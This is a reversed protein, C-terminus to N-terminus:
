FSSLIRELSSVSKKMDLNELIYERPHYVDKQIGILFRDYVEIFKEIKTLDSMHIIEGCIYSWYPINRTYIERTYYELDCISKITLDQIILIILPINIGLIEYLLFDYFENTTIWIGFKPMEKSIDIYSSITDSYIIRPIINKNILFEYIKDINIYPNQVYIFCSTISIIKDPINKSLSDM